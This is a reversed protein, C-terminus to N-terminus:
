RLETQGQTDDQKGESGGERGGKLKTEQLLDEMGDVCRGNNRETVSGM